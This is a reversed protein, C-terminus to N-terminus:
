LTYGDIAKNIIDKINKYFKIHINSKPVVIADNLFECSHVNASSSFFTNKDYFVNKLLFVAM